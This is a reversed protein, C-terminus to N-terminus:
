GGFGSKVSLVRGQAVSLARAIGKDAYEIMIGEITGSHVKSSATSHCRPIGAVELPMGEDLAVYTGYCGHSIIKGFESLVMTGNEDFEYCLPKDIDHIIGAAIIYDLNIKKGFTQEFALAMEYAANAVARCHSVLSYGGIQENPIDALSQKGCMLWTRVWLRVVKEKLDEDQMKNLLPFEQLVEARQPESVTIEASTINKLM